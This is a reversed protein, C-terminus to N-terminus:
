MSPKNIKESPPQLLVTLTIFLSLTLPCNNPHGRTRAVPVTRTLDTTLRYYNLTGRRWFTYLNSHHIIHNSSYYCKYLM